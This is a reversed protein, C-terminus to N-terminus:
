DPPKVPLCWRLSWTSKGSKTSSTNDKEVLILDDLKRQHAAMAEKDVRQKESGEKGGGGSASEKAAKKRQKKLKRREERSLTDAEESSEVAVEKPKEAMAKDGGDEGSKSRKRKGMASREEWLSPAEWVVPAAAALILELETRLDKRAKTARLM